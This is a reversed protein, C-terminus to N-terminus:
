KHLIQSIALSTRLLINNNHVKCVLNCDFRKLTRCVYRVSWHFGVYCTSIYMTRVYKHPTKKCYQQNEIIINNQQVFRTWPKSFFWTKPLPCGDMSWIFWFVQGQINFYNQSGAFINPLIWLYYPKMWTLYIIHQNNFGKSVDVLSIQTFFYIFIQLIIIFININSKLHIIEHAVFKRWIM